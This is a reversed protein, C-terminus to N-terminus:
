MEGPNDCERPDHWDKSNVALPAGRRAADLVSGHPSFITFEFGEFTPLSGLRYEGVETTVIAAVCRVSTPAVLARVHIIRGISPLM